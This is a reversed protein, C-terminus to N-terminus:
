TNANEKEKIKNKCDECRVFKRPPHAWKIANSAGILCDILQKKLIALKISLSSLYKM